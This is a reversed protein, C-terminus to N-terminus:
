LVGPMPNPTPARRRASERVLASSLMWYGHPQTGILAEACRALQALTAAPAVQQQAFADAVAITQDMTSLKGDPARGTNIMRDLVTVATRLRDQSTIAVGYRACSALAVHEPEPEFVDIAACSRADNLIAYLLVLGAVVVALAAILSVVIDM